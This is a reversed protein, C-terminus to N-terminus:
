DIFPKAASGSRTSTRLLHTLTVWIVAADFRLPDNIQLFGQVHGLAGCFLGLAFEPGVGNQVVTTHASGFHEVGKSRIIRAMVSPDLAHAQSLVPVDDRHTARM